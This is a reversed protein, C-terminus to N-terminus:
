GMQTLFVDPSANTDNDVLNAALSKYTIWRGDASIAPFLSRDGAQAGDSASRCGNLSGPKGISCSCMGTTTPTM